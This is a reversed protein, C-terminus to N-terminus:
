EPWFAEQFVLKWKGNIKHFERYYFTDEGFVQLTVKKTIQNSVFVQEWINDRTWKGHMMPTHTFQKDCNFYEIYLANGKNDFVLQPSHSEATLHNGNQEIIHRHQANLGSAFLMLLILIRM